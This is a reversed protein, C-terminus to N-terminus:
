NNTAIDGYFIGRGHTGVYVRGYKKLDGTIQLILAWNHKDDNIRVWNKGEDDSCFIGDTGKITGALYLAPYNKGPAAKGFGFAHVQEVGKIKKLDRSLQLYNNFIDRNYLNDTQVGVVMLNGDDGFTKLFQQYAQYKPNDTPIARTYEYSLEVKSAEFGAYVFVAALFLLLGFRYKLIFAAIRGWM